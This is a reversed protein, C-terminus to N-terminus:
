WSSNRGRNKVDKADIRKGYDESRISNQQSSGSKGSRDCGKKAGDGGGEGRGLFIRNLITPDGFKEKTM